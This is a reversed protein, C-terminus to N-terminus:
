LVGKTSPISKERSDLGTAQDLARALAKFSAEIIHHKDNGRLIDLHLNMGCHQAFSQFFHELDAFYYDDREVDTHEIGSMVFYPRNSIDIVVRALAEDMPAYFTGYRTIGKKDGLADKFASSLSIAVDENTHHIDVDTDGKANVEIDFFGHKSFLTLMHDLFPVSTSIKSKGSGDITLAVSVDTEETKRKVDAKRAM